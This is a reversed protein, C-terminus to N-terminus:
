TEIYIVQGLVKKPKMLKVGVFATSYGDNAVSVLKCDEAHSLALMKGCVRGDVRDQWGSVEKANPPTFRINGIVFTWGDEDLDAATQM